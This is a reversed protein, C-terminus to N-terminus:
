QLTKQMHQLRGKISGDIVKDGARVLIGGILSHDIRVNMNIAKGFAKELTIKLNARVDDSFEFATAVDVDVYGQANAKYDEFLEVIKPMLLLRGNQVLLSLFNITEISVRGECCERLAVILEPKGVKPNDLFLKLDKDSLVALLGNLDNSWQEIQQTEVARKFAALAYPRALTALESM